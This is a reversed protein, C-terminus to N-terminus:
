FILPLFIFFGILLAALSSLLVFAAMMDKIKGVVPHHQPEIEDCIDELITNLIESGLVLTVAFIVFLWDNRSIELIVGAGIVTITALCHLYFNEEEKFLYHFGQLAYQFSKILRGLV